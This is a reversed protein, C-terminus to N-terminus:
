GTEVSVSKVVAHVQTGVRLGLEAVSKATIKAVLREGECELALHVAGGGPGGREGLAAVRCPLANLASVGAPRALALMVDGALIRVRLHQGAQLDGRGVLLAGAPTMLRALGFTEDFDLVVAPLVASPEPAGSRTALDLRSFVEAPPGCATIHGKEMLAVTGALRTVETVAHSVYIIPMEAEDRLRELYPLIEAKRAEDLAALPEDLLLLRPQALLARGLAVRQKEGGSLAGPHRALLHGIGLMETVRALQAPRRLSRPVFGHGFLLNRRVSLHPFLRADQFVYGIRRRHPPLAINAAVDTLTEGAVRVHGEQPRSLGAVSNILTTKGAGSPGFLATVQADSRLVADLQFSGLRHRVALDLVPASM